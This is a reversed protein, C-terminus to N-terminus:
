SASPVPLRRVRCLHVTDPVVGTLRARSARWLAFALFAGAVVVIAVLAIALVRKKKRRLGNEPPIALSATRELEADLRKRLSRLDILMDKATQYREDPSKAMAKSVIRQLEAPVNSNRFASTGKRSDPRDHSEDHGRQFADAGTVMEYIM